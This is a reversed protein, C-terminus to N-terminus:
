ENDQGKLIDSLRTLIEEQEREQNDNEEEQGSLLSSLQESIRTLIELQPDVPPPEFLEPALDPEGELFLGRLEALGLATLTEGPLFEPPVRGMRRYKPLLAKYQAERTDDEELGDDSSPVFLRVMAAALNSWTEEPPPDGDPTTDDNTTDDTTDDEPTTDTEGQDLVRALASSLDRLGVRQREMLADPDGPVPVASIDLLDYLTEGNERVTDWGVSVANLFGRRYKSEVQRAFEDEQDFAVDAVLREEEINIEARGIPLNRGMYDHAWLVVPNARYNGLNWQDLALDRGDRKIGETSATFRIPGSEGVEAARYARLYNGEM